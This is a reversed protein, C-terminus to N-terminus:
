KAGIREDIISRMKEICGSEASKVAKKMVPRKKQGRSTGYELYALKEANRVGKKDTGTPGVASFCGYANTKAKTARISGTLEGTANEGTAQNIASSLSERLIPTAADIAEKAIEDIDGQLQNLQRMLADIGDISLKGM